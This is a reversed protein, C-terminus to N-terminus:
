VRGEVQEPSMYAPTGILGGTVATHGQASRAIGFDMIKINGEQDLMLNEPKLDRHIVGQKHAEAMGAIIQRAIIIGKRVSLAEARALLHRLTEGRVFEMTIAATDGFQHLDYIRCVNKHTIKRALRLENKFREIRTPDNVIEPKLVKLAVIEDTIKDKAKYVVGMGGRGLEALLDFREAVRQLAPDKVVIGHPSDLTREPDDSVISDRNEEPTKREKGMRDSPESM